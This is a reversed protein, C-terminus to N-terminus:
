LSGTGSTGGNLSGSASEEHLGYTGNAKRLQDIYAQAYQQM